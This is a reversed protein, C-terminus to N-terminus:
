ALPRPRSFLFKKEKLTIANDLVSEQWHVGFAHILVDEWQSPRVGRTPHRWSTNNCHDLATGIAQLSIWNENNLWKQTQHLLRQSNTIGPKACKRAETLISQAVRESLTIGGNKYYCAKVLKSWRRLWHVYNEDPLRNVFMMRRLCKNEWVNLKQVLSQCWTWVSSSHTIVPVILQMYQEFKKKRSILRSLFIDKHAWFASTGKALVHAIGDFDSGDDSIYTGLSIFSNMQECSIQGADTDITFTKLIDFHNKKKGATQPTQLFQLSKDKWMLSHSFLLHTLSRLMNEYQALDTAILYIYDSWIAHTAM